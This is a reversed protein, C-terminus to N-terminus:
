VSKTHAASDLSLHTVSLIFSLIISTIPFIANGFFMMNVSDSGFVTLPFIMRRNNFSIKMEPFIKPSM